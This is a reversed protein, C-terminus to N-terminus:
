VRNVVKLMEKFKREDNVSSKELASFTVSQFNDQDEYLFHAVQSASDVIVFGLLFYTSMIKNFFIPNFLDYGYETKIFEVEESSLVITANPLIRKGIFMSDKMTALSKRRKLTLWWPSAGSKHAVVDTKIEKMNLLFDKFFSIEGTTWRLFNFVKNNNRCANVMNIVMDNSKVPHMICKIGVIFDVVGMDENKDNVLRVRIYLTTAVLENSKKVDNDKLIDKSLDVSKAPKNMGVYVNNDEKVPTGNYKKNLENDRFNYIVESKPTYKNNLIDHRLHEMVDFLQEKNDAKIKMTASEYTAGLIVMQDNEICNYSDMMSNLANVIDNKDTKTGINQHFKTLYKSTDWNANYTDTPSHSFAIQAFTSYNRELAKSINQATEIDISSSILVPFQLTGESARKSISSYQKGMKSYKDFNSDLLGSDAADKIDKITTAIDYFIGM